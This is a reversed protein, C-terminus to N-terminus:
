EKLENSCMGFMQFMGFMWFIRSCERVDPVNEFMGFM